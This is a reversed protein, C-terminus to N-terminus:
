PPAQRYIVGFVADALWREFSANDSFLGFFDTDHKMLGVIARRVKDHEIRCDPRSGGEAPLPDITADADAFQIQQVARKEARYSGMDIAELM